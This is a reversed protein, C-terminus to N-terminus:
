HTPLRAAERVIWRAEMIGVRLSAAPSTGSDSLYCWVSSLLLIASKHPLRPPELSARGQTSNIRQSLLRTLGTGSLDPSASSAPAPSTMTPTATYTAIFLATQTGADIPTFTAAAGILTPTSTYTPPIPPQPTNTPLPTNSPILTETAIPQPLLPIDAYSCAFVLLPVILFIILRKM